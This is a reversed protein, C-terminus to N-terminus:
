PFPRVFYLTSVPPLYPFVGLFGCKKDAKEGLGLNADTLAGRAVARYGSDKSGIPKELAAATRAITATKYVVLSFGMPLVKEKGGAAHFRQKNASMRFSHEDGGRTIRKHVKSRKYMDRMDDLTARVNSGLVGGDDVVEDKIIYKYDARSGGRVHLLNTKLIPDWSEKSNDKFDSDERGNRWRRLTVADANWVHSQRQELMETEVFQIHEDILSAIRSTKEGDQECTTLYPEVEKLTVV